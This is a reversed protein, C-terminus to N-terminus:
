MIVDPALLPMIAARLDAPLEATAEQLLVGQHMPRTVVPIVEATSPPM